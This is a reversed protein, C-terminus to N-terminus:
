GNSARQPHVSRGHAQARRWDAISRYDMAQVKQVILVHGGPPAMDPEYLTPVFLKFRLADTGVRDSDWGDWYYGQRARLVEAPVDRLGIHMLFCPYSPQFRRVRALSESGVIQPEIMQEFTQLLDANSIVIPARVFVRRRARAPGALLEM